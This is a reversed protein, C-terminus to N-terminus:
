FTKLSLYDRSFNQAQEIHNTRLSIELDRLVQTSTSNSVMRRKKSSRSAKPDLYTKLKRLYYPPTEKAHVREQKDPNMLISYRTTRVKHNKMSLQVAREPLWSHLVLHKTDHSVSIINVQDCIMDWKKEDDYQRLLKVKDPPLDM